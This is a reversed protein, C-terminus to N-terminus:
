IDSLLNLLKKASYEWSYKKLIKERDEQPGSCLEDLNVNADDPNIYYAANEYVERMCSRDSIVIKAGTSMAELPPLGFGEYFTPFLFAKCDRMLTKAESDSVYGLFKLNDPTNHEAEKGFVKSNVAGSVAFISQPNNLAAHVIWNFNKNPALSSMAFYYSQKKLEYKRLTSEDYEINEFHEWASPIVKIMDECIGYNKIMEKKSFESVTIIRKMRKISFAFVLRYWLLFKKSFFRPNVKFSVDHIVALHPTIVPVMNCLNLCLAKEKLVYVPLSYQEWLNGTFGGICRVKIKAYEPIDKADRNVALIIDEDTVLQDLKNLIERAYRQVGTVTQSM